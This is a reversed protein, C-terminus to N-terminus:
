DWASNKILIIKLNIVLRREKPSKNQFFPSSNVDQHGVVTCIFSSSSFFMKLCLHFLHCIQQIRRQFYSDGPEHKLWYFFLSFIRGQIFIDCCKEFGWSKEMKEYGWHHIRMGEQGWSGKINNKYSITYGVFSGM